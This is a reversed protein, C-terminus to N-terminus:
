LPAGAGDGGIGGGADGGLGWSPDMWSWPNYAPAPTPEPEPQPPAYNLAGEGTFDLLGTLDINGTAGIITLGSQLLTNLKDVAGQKTAADTKPDAMVAAINNAMATYFQAASASAQILTKYNAEINALMEAQEGKLTQMAYQHSQEQAMLTTKNAADATQLSARNSAEANLARAANEAAQNDRSATGYIAADSQAIPTAAGIAAAEGAGAAMSTNLLGRANAAQMAGSRAMQLYPSDARILADLQGSVTEKAQDIHRISPDVSAVDAKRVYGPPPAAQLTSDAQAVSNPLLVNSNQAPLAVDEDEVMADNVLAM